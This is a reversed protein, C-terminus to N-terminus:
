KRIIITKLSKNIKNYLIFFNVYSLLIKCFDIVIIKLSRFRQEM